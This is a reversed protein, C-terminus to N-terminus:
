IKNATVNELQRSICRSIPLNPLCFSAANLLFGYGGIPFLAVVSPDDEYLFSFIM